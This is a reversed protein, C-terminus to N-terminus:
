LRGSEKRGKAFYTLPGVFNVAIIAAWKAKSGDIESADRTALDAWATAALALQVSGAVLIVAQQATTLDSWKKKAMRVGELVRGVMWRAKCIRDRTLTTVHFTPGTFIEFPDDSSAVSTTPPPGIHQQEMGTHGVAPGPPWQHLPECGRVPADREVGAAM